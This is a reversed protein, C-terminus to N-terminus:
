DALADPWVRRVDAMRYYQRGGRKEGVIRGARRAKNITNPQLGYKIRYHDAPFMAGEGNGADAPSLADQGNGMRRRLGQLAVVAAARQEGDHCYSLMDLPTPDIGYRECAGAAEKLPEQLKLITLEDVPDDTAVRLLADEIAMIAEWVDPVNGGNVPQANQQPM